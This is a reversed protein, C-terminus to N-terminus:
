DQGSYINYNFKRGAGTGDGYLQVGLITTDILTPYKKLIESAIKINDTDKSAILEKVTNILPNM